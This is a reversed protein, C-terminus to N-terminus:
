EVKTLQPVIRWIVLACILTMAGCIIIAAQEGLWGATAGIWLSGLPMFGFFVFTYVGMVRGRLRDETKLQVLVTSLNAILLNAMGLAVLMGLALPVSRIFSFIVTLFPVTFTGLTILKGKFNFNGLSAMWLAMILAGVGRAAQLLGNTTSDGKLVVVAWAPMLTMFSLGFLGTMMMLLVLGKLLPNHWVYRIGEVLEKFVSEQKAKRIVPPVRMMLLGLIIALFSFGNIMFCWAPGVLAYLIGGVAPGLVTSTNYMTGNMVIANTLDEKPVMDPVLAHRAPADFANAIGNLFALMLIHWPQVLGTFTLAALIFALIMMGIQTIVMLDRRSMRDTIVGGYLTFLWYPVGAAFGVLGLYTPSNTLQYVLFGLATLQMWTGFMSLLQGWFWLRYNRHRFAAFTASFAMTRKESEELNKM